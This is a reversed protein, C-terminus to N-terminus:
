EDDAPLVFGHKTGDTFYVMICPEPGYAADVKDTAISEITKGLIEELSVHRYRVGKQRSGCLIKM